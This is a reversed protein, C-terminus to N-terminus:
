HPAIIKHIMKQVKPPITARMKIEKSTIKNKLRADTIQKCQTLFARISIEAKLEIHKSIVLAMFCILLHLKIPEEKFHFIPRIQLDNKSIRFAQEIKYLDHYRSTITQNDVVSEEIDTYYGKVGLLKTTKGILEENLLTNANDSKLYKVKKIKSPQKLLTKAKEIQKEMEYKDKKYRQNSFSCILYGNDTKLRIIKGDVRPLSNDIVTLLAAPINGLRAGVIYNIKERRLAEVNTASIMAADAVVTFNQVKHKKIFAKIVPVITHGEFTNGPFVEYGVPLGEPTVMLAVVVQPQQSKGDKSFGPKRLDDSEFTEFYLTTVDYFLLSFDFSYEKQAFLLTQKEIGEKLELWRLASEYFRQRRHRFGFYTEMLEMSRLKSAPEVIRMVVLDNLLEDAILTYGLKHQIARLVEYLFTYHFGIYDFQSLLLTNDDPKAEEFLLAAQLTYGAIYSRAMQQLVLIQEPTTGSGIHKIIVRRSKEYRYVQVSLSVGKTKIVRVHLM